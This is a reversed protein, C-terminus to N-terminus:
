SESLRVPILRNFSAGENGSTQLRNRDMRRQRRWDDAAEYRAWAAESAGNGAKKMSASSAKTSDAGAISERRRWDCRNGGVSITPKGARVAPGVVSANVKGNAVPVACRPRQDRQCRRTGIVGGDGVNVGVASALGNALLAVRLCSVNLSM